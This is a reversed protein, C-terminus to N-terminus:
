CPGNTWVQFDNCKVFFLVMKKKPLEVGFMGERVDGSFCRVVYLRGCVHGWLCLERTRKM